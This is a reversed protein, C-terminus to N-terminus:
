PVHSGEASETLPKDPDTERIFDRVERMAILYHYITVLLGLVMISAVIFPIDAWGIWLSVIATFLFAATHIMNLTNLVRTRRKHFAAPLIRGLDEAFLFQKEINIVFALNRNFWKGANIAVNIGWFSIILSFVVAISRPVSERVTSIMLGAIVAYLAVFQWIGSEVRDISRWLDDYLRLLFENRWTERDKDKSTIM